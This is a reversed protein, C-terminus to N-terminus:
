AEDAPTLKVHIGEALSMSLGTKLKPNKSVSGPMATVDKYSQLLRVITYAAETLAYQQGLCIRPGGNFPLFDWPHSNPRSQSWRDPRFDEFDPGWFDPIRHTDFISFSVVTGKPVFVPSQEDPGGGRPLTTDHTARRANTAITPYLRMTENIVNRLYELRKLSEFTIGEKSTGFAALVEARLKAFVDKHLALQHFVFSLLSSTTDRGAVLLNMVQDRLIVPDQTEKILEDLFVYTDSNIKKTKSRELAQKIYYEVFTKCIRCNERFEKSDILWYLNQARMRLVMTAQCSDFARSFDNALPIKSDGSLARVPEGFLFETSNDMMFQFFLTQLDTYETPSNNIIKMLVQLNSECTELHSIRERSFQPRLIARSHSWGAGDLTFIGEGLLPFFPALRQGLEFDNFQTAMIAKLNEPECTYFMFRGPVQQMLTRAGADKRFQQFVRYVNHNKMGQKIKLYWPIGQPVAWNVAPMKVGAKQKSWVAYRYKVYHVVPLVFLLTFLLAAVTGIAKLYFNM